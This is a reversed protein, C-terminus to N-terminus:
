VNRKDEPIHKMWDNGLNQYFDHAQVVDDYSIVDKSEDWGFPTSKSYNCEVTSNQMEHKDLGLVALGFNKQCTPCEIRVVTYNDETRLVSVSDSGFNTDCNSCKMQSFFDKIIKKQM